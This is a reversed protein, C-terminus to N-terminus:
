FKVKEGYFAIMKAKKLLINRKQYVDLSDKEKKLLDEIQQVEKEHKQKLLDITTPPITFLSKLKKNYYEIANEQVVIQEIQKLKQPDKSISQEVVLSSLKRMSLDIGNCFENIEESFTKTKSRDM